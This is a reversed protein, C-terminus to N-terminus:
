LTYNAPPIREKEITITSLFLLREATASYEKTFGTIRQETIACSFFLLAIIYSSKQAM